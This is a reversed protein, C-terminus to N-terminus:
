RNRQSASERLQTPAGGSVIKTLRILAIITSPGCKGDVKIGVSKQFEKVASETKEGFVGDVRGANFGMETLRVQLAAVDDGRM